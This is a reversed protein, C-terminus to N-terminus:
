GKRARRRLAGLGALGALLLGGAAPVPVPAVDAEFTVESLFVWSSRRFLQATLTDTTTGTLDYTFSFPARGANTPVLENVGNISVSNPQAVGGTGDSDDFYFTASTFDYAQDFRFTIVPNRSLWGVYLPTQGSVFWNGTAIVGDTLDGTGGSLASYSTTTAGTGDYTDDWYTLSGTGGNQMDYSVPSVPTAQAAACVLAFGAALGFAKFTM